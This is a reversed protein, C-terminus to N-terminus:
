ITITELIIINAMIINRSMMIGVHIFAKSLNIGQRIADALLVM